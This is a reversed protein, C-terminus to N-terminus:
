HLSLLTQCSISSFFLLFKPFSLSLSDFLFRLLFLWSYFPHFPLCILLSQCPSSHSCGSLSVIVGLASLIWSVQPTNNFHWTQSGFAHLFSINVNFCLFYLWRIRLHYNNLDLSPSPVTWHYFVPKLNVLDRSCVLLFLCVIWSIFNELASNPSSFGFTNLNWSLHSNFTQRTCM